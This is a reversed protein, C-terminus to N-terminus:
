LEQYKLITYCRINWYIPMINQISDWHYGYMSHHTNLNFKLVSSSRHKCGRVRKRFAGLAKLKTHEDHNRQPVLEALSTSRVLVIQWKRAIRRKLCLSNHPFSSPFHSPGMLNTLIGPAQVHWNVDLIGFYQYIFFILKWGRCKQWM